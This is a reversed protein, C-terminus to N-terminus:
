RDSDKLLKLLLQILLSLWIPLGRVDVAQLKGVLVRSQEPTVADIFRQIYGWTEDSELNYSVLAVAADDADTATWPAVLKLLNAVQKATERASM